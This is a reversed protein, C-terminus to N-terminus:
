TRIARLDDGAGLLRCSRKAEGGLAVAVKRRHTAPPRAPYLSVIVIWCWAVQASQADTTSARGDMRSTEGAYQSTEGCM